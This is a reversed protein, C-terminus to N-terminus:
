FGFYFLHRFGKLILTQLRKVLTFLPLVSLGVCPLVLALRGSLLGSVVAFAVQFREFHQRKVRKPTAKAM